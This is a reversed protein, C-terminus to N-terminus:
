GCFRQYNAKWKRPSQWRWSPIGLAPDPHRRAFARAGAKSVIRMGTFHTNSGRGAVPKTAVGKVCDGGTQGTVQNGRRKMWGISSTGGAQSMAMKYRIKAGKVQMVVIACDYQCPGSTIMYNTHASAPGTSLSAALVLCVAGIFAHIHRRRIPPSVAGLRFTM